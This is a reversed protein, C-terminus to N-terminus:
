RRDRELCRVNRRRFNWTLQKLMGEIILILEWIARGKKIAPRLSLSQSAIPASLLSLAIEDALLEGKGSV